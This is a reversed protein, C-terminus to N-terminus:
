AYPQVSQDNYRNQTLGGSVIRQHTHAWCTAFDQSSLSMYQGSMWERLEYQLLEESFICTHFEKSDVSFHDPRQMWSQLACGMTQRALDEDDCAMACVVLPLTKWPSINMAFEYKM